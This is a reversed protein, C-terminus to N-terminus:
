INDECRCSDYLPIEEEAGGKSPTRPQQSECILIFGPPCSTIQRRPRAGNDMNACATIPTGVILAMLTVFIPVGYKRMKKM